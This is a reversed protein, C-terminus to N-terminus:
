VDRYIYRYLRAQADTINIDTLIFEHKSSFSFPKLNFGVYLTTTAYIIVRIYISLTIKNKIVILGFLLRGCTIIM